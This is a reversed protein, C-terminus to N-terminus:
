WPHPRCGRRWHVTLLLIPKQLSFHLMLVGCSSLAVVESIGETAKIYAFSIGNDVIADWDVNGRHSSVDIGKPHPSIELHEATGVAVCFVTASLFLVSTLAQLNFLM